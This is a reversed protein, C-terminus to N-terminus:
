DNYSGKSCVSGLQSAFWCSFVGQDPTGFVSISFISMTSWWSTCFGICMQRRRLLPSWAAHSDLVSQACQLSPLIEAHEGDFLVGLKSIRRKVLSWAAQPLRRSTSIIPHHAVLMIRALLSPSIAAQGRPTVAVAAEAYRLSLAAATPGAPEEASATPDAAVLLSQSHAQWYHLAETFQEACLSSSTVTFFRTSFHHLM